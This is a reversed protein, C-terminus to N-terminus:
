PRPVLTNLWGVGPGRSGIAPFPGGAATRDSGVRPSAARPGPRERGAGDTLRHGVRRGRGDTLGGAQRRLGAAGDMPGDTPCEGCEWGDTGWGTTGEGGAGDTLGDGDPGGM